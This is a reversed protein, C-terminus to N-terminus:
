RRWAARPPLLPPVSGVQPQQRRWHSPLAVDRLQIHRPIPLRLSPLPHKDPDALLPIAPFVSGLVDAVRNPGLRRHRRPAPHHFDSPRLGFDSPFGFVSTRLRSPRTPQQTRRPLQHMLSACPLLVPTGGYRCRPLAARALPTCPGNALNPRHAPNRRQPFDAPPSM